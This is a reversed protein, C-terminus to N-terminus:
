GESKEQIISSLTGVVCDIWESVSKYIILDDSTWYYISGDSSTMLLGGEGSAEGIITLDNRNLEPIHFKIDDLTQYLDKPKSLIQEFSFLDVGYDFDQFGDSRNYIEVLSVGLLKSAHDIHKKDIPKTSIPKYYVDKTALEKRLSDLDDLKNVIDATLEEDHM